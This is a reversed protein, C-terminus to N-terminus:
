GLLEFASGLGICIIGGAAAVGPPIQAVNLSNVTGAVVLASGGMILANGFMSM